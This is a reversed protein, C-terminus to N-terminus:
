NTPKPRVIPKKPNLPLIGDFNAPIVTFDGVELEEALQLSVVFDGNRDKFELGLEEALTAYIKAVSRIPKCM